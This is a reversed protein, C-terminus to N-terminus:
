YRRSQFFEKSYAAFDSGEGTLVYGGRTTRRLRGDKRLFGLRREILPINAEDRAQPTLARRSPSYDIESILAEIWPRTAISKATHYGHSVEIAIRNYLLERAERSRNKKGGRGWTLPRPQIGDNRRKKEMRLAAAKNRHRDCLRQRRNKAWFIRSCGRLSCERIRDLQAAKLDELLLEKQIRRLNEHSLRKGALSRFDNVEFFAQWNIIRSSLRQAYRETAAIFQAVLPPCQSPLM